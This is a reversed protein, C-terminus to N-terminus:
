DCLLPLAPDIVKRLCQTHVHFHQVTTEGVWGKGEPRLSVKLPDDQTKEIGKACIGCVVKM